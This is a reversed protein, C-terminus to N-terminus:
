DEAASDIMRVFVEELDPEARNVSILSLGLERLQGLIAHLADQDAIPGTLTTDEDELEVTFTDFRAATETSLHGEVRIRYYEESFIDLLEEVSHDAIIRGKSIIAVRDCLEEAMDLQHTTLVVTKGLDRALRGVLEKVARAAQVDLGLTPEDLLVIAPDAILACAVAVKQQMGRSFTRVLDKRREWLELERLLQEARARLGRGRAGKLHGFYILNDWASLPWHVNRTGELVAGIQRMAASRRRFVDHGNVYATGSTPQVLSCVMKITTTKGAGNPGLFGFVQGPPVTLDLRKVAEIATGNRQYYTKSLGDLQIAHQLGM